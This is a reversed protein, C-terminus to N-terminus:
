GLIANGPQARPRRRDSAGGSLNKRTWISKPFTTRRFRGLKSRAEILTRLMKWATSSVLRTTRDRKRWNRSARLIRENTTRCDKCMAPKGQPTLASDSTTKSPFRIQFRQAAAHPNRAALPNRRPRYSRRSLSGKRPLLKKRLRRRALLNKRPWPSLRDDAYSTYLKLLAARIRRRLSKWDCRLECLCKMKVAANTPRSPGRWIAKPTYHKMSLRCRSEPRSLIPLRISFCAFFPGSLLGAFAFNSQFNSGSTTASILGRLVMMAIPKPNITTLRKDPKIRGADVFYRSSSTIKFRCVRRNGIM